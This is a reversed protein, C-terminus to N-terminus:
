GVRYLGVRRAQPNRSRNGTAQLQRVIECAVYTKGVDTDAGTIFYGRAELKIMAANQAVQRAVALRM